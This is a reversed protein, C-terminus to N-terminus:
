LEYNLFEPISDMALRLTLATAISLSATVM